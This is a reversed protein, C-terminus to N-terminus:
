WSENIVELWAHANMLPWVCGCSMLVDATDDEKFLSLIIGYMGSVDVEKHYYKGFEMTVRVADGVKM